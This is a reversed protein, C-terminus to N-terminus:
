KSYLQKYNNWAQEHEESTPLRLTTETTGEPDVDQPIHVDAQKEILDLVGGPVHQDDLGPHAITAVMVACLAFLQLDITLAM